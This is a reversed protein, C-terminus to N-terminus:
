TECAYARSPQIAYKRTRKSTAPQTAIVRTVRTTTGRHHPREAALPSTAPSQSPISVSIHHNHIRRHLVRHSRRHSQVADRVATEGRAHGSPAARKTGNRRVGFPRSPRGRRRCRLDAGIVAVVRGLRRTTRRGRPAQAVFAGAAFDYVSGSGGSAAAAPRSRRSQM